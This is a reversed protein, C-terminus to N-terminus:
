PPVAPSSVPPTRRWRKAATSSSGNRGTARSRARVPPSSSPSRRAALSRGSSMSGSAWCSGCSPRRSRPASTTTRTSSEASTAASSSGGERVFATVAELAEDTLLYLNPVVVLRYGALERAPPVVDVTISGDFFPRYWSRVITPLDLLQSRHDAGDFAWWNDWGFLLAVDADATSGAIEELAALESGLRVTENWGRAETGGHPRMASHFKEAAARITARILADIV